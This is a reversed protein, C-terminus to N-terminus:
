DPRPVAFALPKLGQSARLHMATYAAELHRTFRATDFLPHTARNRALTSRIAALKMPDRALTLALAEYEELSQAVLERLGLAHLLSAAVRGAFTSGACTLLPLGAWLADAATSHANQPLTDLFLDALALRALHDEAAPVHEAFILRRSDIGRAEAERALNRMAAPSCRGFWLVSNEVAALLRMWVGFMGPAIKYTNNFSCFVFGKDPLGADARSPTRGAIPRPESPMYTDPLYVIKESYHHQESEPIVIRDAILYDIYDVGMTGTFGLFSVQVRAPGRPLVASRGKGTFGMLDVAIDAEARRLLAAIDADSERSADIFRDCSKAIRERMASGDDPGLSVGIIEFRRRDHRELVGAILQAVPHVRFDESLYAVCIREHNYRDGQWLRPSSVACESEAWIKACQLQEAPSESVALNMLPQIMRKGESLGKAIANRQEDYLRWDCSRLRFYLLFGRMYDLNPDLTLARECDAAADEYQKAESLITARNVLADICDPKLALARDYSEKAEATRHLAKLAVAKTVWADANNPALALSRGVSTLAEGFRELVVLAVARNFWAMAVAPDLGLARDFCHVAEEERELKLLASGRLFHADASAPNLKIAEGMLREADAFAGREGYLFGLRFLAAFSRPERRLVDKYLREASAYDGARHRQWAENLM